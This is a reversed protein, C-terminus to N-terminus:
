FVTNMLHYLEEPVLSWKNSILSGSKRTMQVIIQDAWHDYVDSCHGGGRNLFLKTNFHVLLALCRHRVVEFFVLFFIVFRVIKNPTGIADNTIKFTYVFIHRWHNKHLSATELRAIPCATCWFNWCLKAYPLESARSDTWCWVSLYPARDQWRM